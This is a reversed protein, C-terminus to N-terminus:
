KEGREIEQIRLFILAGGVMLVFMGIIWLSLRVAPDPIGCVIGGEQMLSLILGIMHRVM